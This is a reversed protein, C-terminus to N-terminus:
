KSLFRDLAYRLIWAKRTASTEARAKTLTNAFDERSKKAVGPMVRLAECTVEYVAACAAPNGDNFLPVGRDIALLVLEEPKLEPAAERPPILVKDIVHIIGNSARIDAKVLTAAGVRVRGDAFKFTVAEGELTTGKGLELAKALPVEGAIVHYKLIDALDQKNEPQLLSKLTKEPLAAFAEDTPALVTLPGQGALADALDAAKAAALLTKFSGARAAVGVITDDAAPARGGEFDATISIIELEFRGAKKDALTFGVSNIAAPDIQGGPIRRGFAQLKFDALPIRTETLKGKKTELNARYSSAGFQRGTRAEAWYTRGDGRVKIILATAGELGLAAPKTRISAFGGNNELSLKGSFLLTKDGTRKFGGRSVGGMVDDNVSVWNQESGHKEFSAIVKTDEARAGQAVVLLVLLWPLCHLRINRSGSFVSM